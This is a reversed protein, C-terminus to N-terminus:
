DGYSILLHGKILGKCIPCKKMQYDKMEMFCVHCLCLHKCPILILNRVFEMCIICRQEDRLSEGSIKEIKQREKLMNKKERRKKLYKIFIKYIVNLSYITILSTFILPFFSKLFNKDLDKKISNISRSILDHPELFIKNTKTNWYLTSYMFVPTNLTVGYVKEKTLFSINFLNTSLNLTLIEILANFLSFIFTFRNSYPKIKVETLKYIKELNENSKILINIKYKEDEFDKLVILGSKGYKIVEQNGQYNVFNNESTKIFSLFKGDENNDIGYIPKKTFLSGEIFVHKKKINKNINKFNKGINKKDYTELIIEKVSKYGEEKIKKRLKRLKKMRLIHIISAVGSISGIIIFVKLRSRDFDNFM